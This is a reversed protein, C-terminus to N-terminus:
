LLTLSAIFVVVISLATLTKSYSDPKPPPLPLDTSPEPLFRNSCNPGDYGEICFCKKTILCFGFGSCDDPCSNSLKACFDTIVAPCSFQAGTELTIKQDNTTCIVEQGLIKIKAKENGECSAKFCKPQNNLVFCRSGAGYAENSDPKNEEPVDKLCYKGDNQKYKCGSMFTGYAACTAKSTYDPSCM